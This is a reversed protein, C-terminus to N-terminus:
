RDRKLLRKFYISVLIGIVITAIWNITIAAVEFRYDRDLGFNISYFIFSLVILVFPLILFFRVSKEVRSKFAYVPALFLFALSMLIFGLEEMVIFIGHGNYQTLLAIGETEGKMVSIPVVAFQIYYALLLVTASILAFAISIFSYIKKETPAVFHNSIVFILFACLQFVVFYM